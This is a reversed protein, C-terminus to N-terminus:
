IGLTKRIQENMRNQEALKRRLEDMEHHICIKEVKDLTDKEGQKYMGYGFLGMIILDFFAWGPSYNDGHYM